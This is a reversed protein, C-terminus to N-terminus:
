SGAIERKLQLRELEDQTPQIKPMIHNDWLYRRKLESAIRRNHRTTLKNRKYPYNLRPVTLRISEKFRVVNLVRYNTREAVRRAKTRAECNESLAIISKIRYM